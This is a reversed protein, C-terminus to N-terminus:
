TLLGKSFQMLSFSFIAFYRHGATSKQDKFSVSPTRFQWTARTDELYNSTGVLDYNGGAFDWPCERGCAIVSNYFVFLITFVKPPEEAASLSGDALYGSFM